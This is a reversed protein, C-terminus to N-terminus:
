LEARHKITALKSIDSDTIKGDNDLDASRNESVPKGKLSTIIELDCDDIVGDGNQDGDSSPLIAFSGGYNIRAWVTQSKPDIGYSGSEFGTKYEGIIFKKESGGINLEVANVWNDGTDKAVLILPGNLEGNYSLSLTYWDSEKSGIENEMGWLTLINSAFTSKGKSIQWGTSIKQVTKRGDYLVSYNRNKGDIIRACTCKSGDIDCRDEVVTFASDPMITFDKGNLSYGFTEMKEFELDPATLLICSSNNNRNKSCVPSSYYDVTIYPGNVTFIYFGASYLEQALPLERSPECYKEDNSPIDPSYYKYSNGTCILQIVSSKLDPSLVISRHHLHDHGSLCYRVGSKDLLQFFRNQASINGSPNSGFLVDGHNQGILNKHSLIFVHTDASRNSLLSDIWNLQDITNSDINRGSNDKRVFQDILIFKANKYDFSYSLCELSEFPFNFNRAGFTNTKGCTQPFVTSFYNAADSGSEHNGRLPFFAIQTDILEQAIRARTDFAKESFDNVLDGVQFVLKVDHKIFEENIQGIIGVAVSNPNEGFFNALWQTDGMVGFKWSESASLMSTYLLISLIHKGADLFVLINKM